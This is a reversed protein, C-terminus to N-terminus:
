GAKKKSPGGMILALDIGGGKKGSPAPPGMEDKQMCLRIAEKMAAIRSDDWEEGPFADAIASAFADDYEMDEGMEDDMM